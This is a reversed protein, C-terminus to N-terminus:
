RRWERPVAQFSAQRELEALDQRAEALSAEVEATERKVRDLDFWQEYSWARDEEERLAARRAELRGIREHVVGFAKRWSAESRAREREEQARRDGAEAAERRSAEAEAQARAAAELLAARPFRVDAQEGGEVALVARPSAREAPCDRLVVPAASLFLDDAAHRELAWRLRRALPGDLALRRLAEEASLWERAAANGACQVRGDDRAVLALDEQRPPGSWRQALVADLLGPGAVRAQVLAPGAFRRSFREAERRDEEQARELTRRWREAAEPAGPLGPFLPRLYEM